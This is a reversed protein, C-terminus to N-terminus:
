SMTQLYVNGDMLKVPYIKLKMISKDCCAADGTTTSFRLFHWPCIVDGDVVRGFRLPGQMHPCRSDFAVIADEHASRRAIAISHGNITRTVVTGDRPVDSEACAFALEPSTPTPTNM